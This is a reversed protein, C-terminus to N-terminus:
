RPLRWERYGGAHKHRHTHTIHTHARARLHRARQARAQMTALSVCRQVTVGVSVPEKAKSPAPELIEFTHTEKRHLRVAVAVKGGEGGDRMRSGPVLALSPNIARVALLDWLGLGGASPLALWASLAVHMKLRLDLVGRSYSVADPAVTAASKGWVLGARLLERQTEPLFCGGTVAALVGGAWLQIFRAYAAQRSLPAQIYHTAVAALCVLLVWYGPGVVEHGQGWLALVQYQLIYVGFSYQGLARVLPLQLM